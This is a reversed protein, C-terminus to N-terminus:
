IYQKERHFIQSNILDIGKEFDNSQSIKERMQLIKEKFSKTTLIQEVKTRIVNAKDKRVDGKLGLGHYIVRAANGPQDVATPFVIMPVGSLICEVVSSMGGHTLMVHTFELVELQPVNNAIFINEPVSEFKGIDIVSGVSMIVSYNESNGFAKIVECFFKFCENYQHQTGLSCYILTKHKRDSIFDNLENSMPERIRDFDIAHGIYHENSKVCRPFDFDKPSSILEPYNNLGIWFPRRSDAVKQLPFNQANAVKHLWYNRTLENSLGNNTPLFRGLVSYFWNNTKKYINFVEWTMESIFHSYFSDSPVFSFHFHPINSARTASVFVSWMMIPIKYKALIIADYIFNFDLIILDPKTSEIFDAYMEGKLVFLERDQFYQLINKLYSMKRGFFGNNKLGKAQNFVPFNVNALKAFEFGQKEIEAKFKADHTSDLYIIKNGLSQLRRATRYSTNYHGQGSHIIFVINAM